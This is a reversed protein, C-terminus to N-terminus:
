IMSLPPPLKPVTVVGSLLPMSESASFVSVVGSTFVCFPLLKSVNANWCAAEVGVGVGVGVGV